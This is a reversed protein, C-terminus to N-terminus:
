ENLRVHRTGEEITVIGMDQFRQVVQQVNYTAIGTMTALEDISSTEMSILHSLIRGAESEGLFKKLAKSTGWSKKTDESMTKIQTQARELEYRQMEHEEKLKKVEFELEKARIEADLREKCEVELQHLKSYAEELDKERKKIEEQLSNMREHSFSEKELAIAEKEKLQTVLAEYKETLIREKEIAVDKAKQLDDLVMVYSNRFEEIQENVAFSWNAANQANKEVRTSLDLIQNNLELSFAELSSRVDEVTEKLEKTTQTRFEVSKEELNKALDSIRAANGEIQNEISSFRTQNERELEVIKQTLEDRLLDIASPKKKGFM